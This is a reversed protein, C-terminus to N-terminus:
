LECAADHGEIVAAGAIVVADPGGNAVLAASFDNRSSALAGGCFVSDGLRTASECASLLTLLTIM